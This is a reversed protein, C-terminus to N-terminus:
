VPALQCWVWPQIEPLAVPATAESGGCFIFDFSKVSVNAERFDHFTVKYKYNNCSIIFVIQDNRINHM